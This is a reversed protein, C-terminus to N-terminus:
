KPRPAPEIATFSRFVHEFVALLGGRLGGGNPALLRVLLGANGPLGGIGSLCGAADAATSLLTRPPLDDAPALILATATARYPGLPSAASLFAAGSLTGADRAVCRGLSDVISIRQSLRDFPRERGAPDHWSVSETVLVRATAAAHITVESHAGANPFLVLADPTYALVAGDAVHIDVTQRASARATDHVVTASQTTIHAAAGTGVRMSLGLDDGRYLGGSASQLYLTALDPRESDLYFPRTVHFPYPVFQRTLITRGGGM